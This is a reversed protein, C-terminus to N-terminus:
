RAEVLRRELAPGVVREGSERYLRALEVLIEPTVLEVAELKRLVRRAENAREVLKTLRQVEAINQRRREVVALRNMTNWDVAHLELARRYATNAEELENNSEHLWGQIRWFRNDQTAADPAQSLLAAAGDIDGTTICDDAKYALLEMNHPFRNLLEDVLELKSRGTMTKPHEGAPSPNPTDPSETELDPLQLVRAVLFLEADPAAELWRENLEVASGSRLTDALFFYVYAERPERQVDIAAHIQRLLKERQLTMAHFWILQQHAGAARPDIRLIRECAAVGKLPDNLHTFALKSLEILAPIARADTDPVRWFYNAAELWEHRGSAAQARYMWAEGNQSDWKSWRDALVQLDDWRQRSRAARCQEALDNRRYSCWERYAYPSIAATALVVIAVSIVVIRRNSSM